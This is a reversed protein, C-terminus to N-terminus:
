WAVETTTAHPAGLPPRLASSGTALGLPLVLQYQLLMQTHKVKPNTRFVSVDEFLRSVDNYRLAILSLSYWVTRSVAGQVEHPLRIVRSYVAGPPTYAHIYLAKPINGVTPWYPRVPLVLASQLILWM